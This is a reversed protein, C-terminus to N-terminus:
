SGRLFPQEQSGSLNYSQVMDSGNEVEALGFEGTGEINYPQNATDRIRRQSSRGGDSIDHFMPPYSPKPHLISKRRSHKDRSFKRHLRRSRPLSQSPRYALAGLDFGAKGIAKATTLFNDSGTGAYFIRRDESCIEGSLAKALIVEYLTALGQVHVHSWKGKRSAGVLGPRHQPPLKRPASPRCRRPVVSSAATRPSEITINGGQGNSSSLVIRRTAIHSPSQAHRTASFNPTTTAMTMMM